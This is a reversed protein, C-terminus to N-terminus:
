ALRRKVWGVLGLGLLGLAMAAPAPAVPTKTDPVAIKCLANGQADFAGSFNYPDAVSVMFDKNWATPVEGNAGGKAYFNGWMAARDSDFSLTLLTSGSGDFKLGFINGPLQPNSNGMAGPQYTRPDGSAPDISPEILDALTFNDSVQLLMHSVSKTLPDGNDASLTYVYHLTGNHNDTINWTIKFFPEEAWKNAATVGGNMSTLSGSSLDAQAVVPCLLMAAGLAGFLRLKWSTRPNM